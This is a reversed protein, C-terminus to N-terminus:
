RRRTLARLFVLIGDRPRTGRLDLGAACGYREFGAFREELHCCGQVGAAVVGVELV